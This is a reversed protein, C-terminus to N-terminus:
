KMNVLCITQTYYKRWNNLQLHVFPHKFLKEKQIKRSVTTPSFTPYALAKIDMDM